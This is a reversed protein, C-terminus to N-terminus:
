SESLWYNRLQQRAPEPFRSSFALRFRGNSKLGRIEGSKIQHDRCIDVIAEQFAASIRGHRISPQGQRIQVVFVPCPRVLTAGYGIVTIVGAIILLGRILDSSSLM